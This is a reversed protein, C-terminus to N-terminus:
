PEIRARFFFKNFGGSGVPESIPNGTGNIVPLFDTWTLLDPSSQLRYRRGLVTTFTLTFVSQNRDITMKFVSASNGADTGAIFESSNSQGDGDYDADADHQEDTASAPLTEWIFNNFNTITGAEYAGIDPVGIIPFGRQDTTITSGTAANRAPSGPKLAMTLTLGGYDNLPALLPQGGILSNDNTFAGITDDPSNQSVISYRVTVNGNPVTFGGGAALVSGNGAITVHTLTGGNGLGAFIGGGYRQAENNAITCSAFNFVGSASVGGGLGGFAGTGGTGNLGTANGSISSSAVRLIGSNSIGGGDGALGPVESFNPDTFVSGGGGTVNENISCASIALTDSSFIGGGSGGNGGSANMGPNPVNGGAASANDSVNCAVLAAANSVFIGGGSGGNGGTGGGSGGSYGRGGRGALNFSVTSGFLSVPGTSFIGGGHGGRGGHSVGATNGDGGFGANGNSVLCSMLTLAGDSRIAGGDAGDGGSGNGSSGNPAKGNIIKLGYIAVSAAAQINFIRSLVEGSVTVSGPLNSADIFISRAAAISIEGQTLNIRAPFVSGDFGIRSGPAVASGLLSRLTIGGADGSSTVNAIPGTEVAGIDRQITGSANGDVLAPFGRQDTGGPNNTASGGDIAPSNILPHMTMTPGGFYALPSLKPNTVGVQDGTATFKATANGTGILNHGVTFFSNVSTQHVLEVDEGANASVITHDLVT